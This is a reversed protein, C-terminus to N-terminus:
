IKGAEKELWLAFKELSDDITKNIAKGKTSTLSPNELGRISAALAILKEKDPAKEAADRAEEADAERKAQADRLAQAEAEVKERAIREKAAIAETAAIEKARIEAAKKAEAQAEAAEKARIAEAAKAEKLRLVEAKEREKQMAKERSAAQKKLEENEKAIRVREAAEEAERKAAEEAAKRAAEAKTDFLLKADSLVSQFQEETMAGVNPVPTESDIFATLKDMRCATLKALEDAIRREEAREISELGKEIPVIIALLINNAGDIAKGMRLSDAKLEKRRKEASVRLSKLELRATRADKPDTIIEAKGKWEEADKFFGAFATELSLTSPKDLGLEQPVIEMKIEKAQTTM